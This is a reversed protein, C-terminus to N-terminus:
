RTRSRRSVPSSESVRRGSGLSTRRVTTKYASLLPQVARYPWGYEDMMKEQETTTSNLFRAVRLQVDRETIQQYQLMSQPFWADRKKQTAKDQSKLVKRRSTLQLLNKVYIYRLTSVADDMDRKLRDM